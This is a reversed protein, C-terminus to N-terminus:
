GLREVKLFVHAWASSHLTYLMEFVARGRRFGIKVGGTECTNFRGCCGHYSEVELFPDEVGDHQGFGVPDDSRVVLDDVNLAARDGVHDFGAIKRANHVRGAQWYARLQEM